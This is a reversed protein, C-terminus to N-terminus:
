NLGQPVTTRVSYFCRGLRCGDWAAWSVGQVASHGHPESLGLMLGLPRPRKQSPCVHCTRGRLVFATRGPLFQSSVPVRGHVVSRCASSFSVHTLRLSPGAPPAAGPRGPTIGCAEMDGNGWPLRRGWPSTDQVGEARQLLGPSRAGPAWSAPLSTFFFPRREVEGSPWPFPLPERSSGVLSVHPCVGLVAATDGTRFLSM